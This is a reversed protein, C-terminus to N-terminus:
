REGGGQSRKHGREPDPRTPLHDAQWAVARDLVARLVLVNALVGREPHREYEHEYCAIRDRLTFPDLAALVVPPLRRAEDRAWQWAEPDRGARTPLFQDPFHNV